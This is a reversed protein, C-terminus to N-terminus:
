FKIEQQNQISCGQSRELEMTFKHKSSTTNGEVTMICKHFSIVKM